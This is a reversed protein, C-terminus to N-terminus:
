QNDTDYSVYMRISLSLLGLIISRSLERENLNELALKYIRWIIMERVNTKRM